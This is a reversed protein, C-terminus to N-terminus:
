NFFNKKNKNQLTPRMYDLSAELELYLQPQSQVESERAQIESSRLVCAEAWQGATVPKTRQRKQNLCNQLGPQGSSIYPQPQILIQPLGAKSELINSHCQHAVM